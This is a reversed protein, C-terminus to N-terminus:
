KRGRHVISDIEEQGLSLNTNKEGWETLVKRSPYGLSRLDSSNVQTHGSFRRIWRDVFTSGLYISLGICLSKPLGKKKEHIFNLHNELGVLEGKTETKLLVSPVVRRREEKSSLRRILVYNGRLSLWRETEDNVEIFQPKKPSPSPHRVRGDDFHFSYFLPVTNEGEEERLSSRLRFDVVPGTSVSLGIDDLSHSYVGMLDRMEDDDDEERVLHFVSEPDSPSCFEHFPVTREQLDSFSSDSSSSIVVDGQTEGKVLHFIVNEQLVDDGKFPDTRSGFLHVRTISTKRLILERFPRFYPGNCFSRPTIGVLEGGDDLMEISLSVFGSYLNSSEIGVSRLVSRHLSNSNIKKYPPNLISHTFKHGSSTTFLDNQSLIFDDTRLTSVFKVHSTECLEECGRLTNRLEPILHSDIEWLECDLSRVGEMVGRKVFETTLSGIGSGPDLLVVSKGRLPRFMSSMFRGIVSPTMFQGLESKRKTPTLQSISERREDISDISLTM